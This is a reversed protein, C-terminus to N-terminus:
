RSFSSEGGMSLRLVVRLGGDRQIGRGGMFALMSGVVSFGLMWPYKHFILFFPWFQAFVNIDDTDDGTPTSSTTNPPAATAADSIAV